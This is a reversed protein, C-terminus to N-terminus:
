AAKLEWTKVKYDRPWQVAWIDLSLDIGTAIVVLANKIIEDIQLKSLEILGNTHTHIYARFYIETKDKKKFIFLNKIEKKGKAGINACSLCM